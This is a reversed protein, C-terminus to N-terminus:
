RIAVLPTRSLGDESGILMHQFLVRSGSEFWEKETIVTLRPLVTGSYWPTGPNGGNHATTTLYIDQALKLDVLRTATYRGGVASIRQIGDERKLQQLASRLDDGNLRIVRIWPRVRLAAGQCAICEDGALLVVPVEPVNFLLTTLDVTGRQSIVIQAPHRPLGLTARLAVLQPHWVSFFAKPHLSRAGALVADAAVRSLGEYILHMDTAGGGFASPDEAGTNGDKSQVFVLSLAAREPHQDVLCFEGGYHM